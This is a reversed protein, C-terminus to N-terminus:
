VKTHKFKDRVEANLMKGVSAGSSDAAMLRDYIDKPVGAYHYTGGGKFSVGLIKKEPDYGIKDVNSSRVTKLDM